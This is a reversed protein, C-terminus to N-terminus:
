LLLNRATWLTWLFWPILPTSVLTFAPLNIDYQIRALMNQINQTGAQQGDTFSLPAQLWVEKSPFLVKNWNIAHAALNPTVLPALKYGSKTTYAGVKDALWILKAPPRFSSPIVQLIQDEHHPLHLRIIHINWENNELFLLDSVRLDSAAMLPTPSSALNPVPQLAEEWRKAALVAKRICNQVSISKDEFFYTGAQQRDTFSLPAQLWVEKSPFLVKNWNIAHAALNPTALPALKYGSKTTYAGVKDALWILKAPSRFSTPIVQRIQDDHHPLHLRMIDINWENTELFLLDSVRLNSAYEYIPDAVLIGIRHHVPHSEFGKESPYVERHNRVPFYSRNVKM